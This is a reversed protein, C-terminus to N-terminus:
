FFGYAGLKQGRPCAASNVRSALVGYYLIHRIYSWTMIPLLYNDLFAQRMAERLFQM